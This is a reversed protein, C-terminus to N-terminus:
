KKKLTFDFVVLSPTTFNGTFQSNDASLKGTSAIDIDGSFFNDKDALVNGTVKGKFELTKMDITGKLNAKLVSTNIETSSGNLTAEVYSIFIFGSAEGTSKIIKLQSTWMNLSSHFAGLAKINLSKEVLNIISDDTVDSVASESETTKETTEPLTSNPASDSSQTEAAIDEGSLAKEYDSKVCGYNIFLISIIIIIIFFYFFKKRSNKTLFKKIV